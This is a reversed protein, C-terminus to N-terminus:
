ERAGGEQIQFTNSNLPYSIDRFPNVSYTAMGRAFYTGAPTREPIVLIQVVSDNYGTGIVTSRPAFSSVVELTKRNVLSWTVTGPMSRTKTAVVRMTLPEGPFYVDKTATFCGPWYTVVPKYYEGDIVVSWFGLATIAIMCLAASQLISSKLDVNM